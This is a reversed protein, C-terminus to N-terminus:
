KFVSGNRIAVLLVKTFMLTLARFFQCISDLRLPETKASSNSEM